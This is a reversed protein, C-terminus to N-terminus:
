RGLRLGRVGRLGRLGRGQPVAEDDEGDPRVQAAPENVDSVQLGSGRARHAQPPQRRHLDPHRRERPTMSLILAETKKM